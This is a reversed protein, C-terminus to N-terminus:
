EAVVSRLETLRPVEDVGSLVLVVAIKTSDQKPADGSRLERCALEDQLWARQTDIAERHLWEPPGGFVVLGRSASNRECDITLRGRTAERVTTEITNIATLEDIDDDQDGRVFNRIRDTFSPASESKLPSLERAAYGLTIFGSESGSLTAIIDSADVVTQGVTQTAGTEGAACLEGIISALETNLRDRESDLPTDTTQWENTDFLFQGDVVSELAQLARITNSAAKPTPEAPLVDVTYIPRNYVEALAQAIHPTAGSGTGGAVGAVLLIADVTSTILPDIARRVALRNADAAAIGATRDGGTGTGATEKLGFSHRNEEPITELQEM